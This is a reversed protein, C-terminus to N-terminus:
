RVTEPHQPPSDSLGESVYAGVVEGLRKAEAKTLDHPIGHVYVTQDSRIRIPIVEGARLLFDLMLPDNM